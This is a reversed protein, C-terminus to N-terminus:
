CSPSRSGRSKRAAIRDFWRAFKTHHPIRFDAIIEQADRFQQPSTPSRRPPMSLSRCSWHSHWRRMCCPRAFVMPEGFSFCIRLLLFRRRWCIPPTIACTASSLVIALTPRGHAFVAVSALLLVGFASPQLGPGLVYQNALGAQVFWPYDADLLRASAYGRIGSHAVILFVALFFLTTWRKPGQPVLLSGISMLAFFYIVTLAFFLLQFIFEHLYRESFEVFASFVPTPDLTKALWDHELHGVGAQAHGHLFYQHQNSFYLPAQTHAIAFAIGLATWIAIDKLARRDGAIM